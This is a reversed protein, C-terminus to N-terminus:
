VWSDSLGTCSHVSYLVTLRSGLQCQSRNSESTLPVIILRGRLPIAKTTRVEGLWDHHWRTNIRGPCTEGLLEGALESQSGSVHVFLWFVCKQWCPIDQFSMTHSTNCTQTHTIDSGYTWWLFVCIRCSINALSQPTARSQPLVAYYTCPGVPTQHMDCATRERERFTKVKM